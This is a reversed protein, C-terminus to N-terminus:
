KEIPLAPKETYLSACEDLTCKLTVSKRPEVHAVVGFPVYLTDGGMGLLGGHRVQIYGSGRKTGEAAPITIEGVLLESTDGAVQLVEVEVDRGAGAARSAVDHEQTGIERDAINGLVHSIQGVKQGQSDFVSMGEWLDFAHPEINSREM